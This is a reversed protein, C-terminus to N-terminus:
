GRGGTPRGLGLAARGAGPEVTHQGNGPYVVRTAGRPADAAACQLPADAEDAYAELAADAVAEEPADLGVTRGAAAHRAIRLVEGGAADLARQEVMPQREAGAQPQAHAAAAVHVHAAAQQ